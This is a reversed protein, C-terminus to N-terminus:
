GEPKKDEEEDEFDSDENPIYRRAKEEEVGKRSYADVVGKLLLREPTQSLDYEPYTVDFVQYDEPTTIITQGEEGELILGAQAFFGRWLILPFDYKHRTDAIVIDL